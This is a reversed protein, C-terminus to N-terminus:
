PQSTIRTYTVNEIVSYISAVGGDAAFKVEFPQDGDGSLRTRDNPMLYVHLSGDPDTPSSSAPTPNMWRVRYADVPTVEAVAGSPSRYAGQLNLVNYVKQTSFQLAVWPTNVEAAVQALWLVRNDACSQPGWYATSADPAGADRFAYTGENPELPIGLFDPGAYYCEGVQAQRPAAQAALVLKNYERVASLFVARQNAMRADHTAKWKALDVTPNKANAKSLLFFGQEQALQKDAMVRDLVDSEISATGKTAESQALLSFLGSSTLTGSLQADLDAMDAWTLSGQTPHDKGNLGAIADLYNSLVTPDSNAAATLYGQFLAEINNTVKVVPESTVNVSTTLVAVQLQGVSTRLATLGAQVENVKALIEGESVVPEGYLKYNNLMTIVQIAAQAGGAVDGLALGAAEAAQKQTGLPATEESSTPVACGINSAAFAIAAVAVLPKAFKLFRM